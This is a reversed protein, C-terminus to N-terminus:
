KVIHPSMKGYFSLLFRLTHQIKKNFYGLNTTIFILLKAKNSGLYNGPPSAGTAYLLKLNRPFKELLERQEPPNEQVSYM